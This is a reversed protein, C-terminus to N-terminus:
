TKQIKRKKGNKKRDQSVRHKRHTKPTHRDTHWQANMNEKRRGKKEKRKEEHM